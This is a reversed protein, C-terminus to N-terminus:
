ETRLADIPDVATARRAPVYSAAVAAAALCLAVAGYTLPDVPSVEFLIRSLLRSLAAASALGVVVGIGALALGHGVFMRQVHQGQAGLAMRIGIERVRQSVTYSIVGYIGVLGLLLAMGGAIALMILTFSTRAMSRQYIEDLTRINAIPVNQSVSRIAARIENSFAETGARPSRLTFLATRGYTEDRNAAHRVVIPWYIMKPAPKDLGAAREDALVGIIERWPDAKNDTIRKGLAAAPDKWNERAFNESVLVVDRREYVDTWTFSRGAILAQGITKDYGPGIFRFRGLPPVEGEKYSREELFIPDWSESNDLTVSRSVGVSEVGPLAALKDAMQQQMLLLHEVDAAETSPIPVNLTQITEPHTFGPNVHRLAQFTRIMLGSSVMLVLALAVQAVVLASRARHRERSQSLARGGGRLSAAIQPRGYKFVPILGILVGAVLAAIVSFTLATADVGIEELRPLGSPRLWVLLRLIGDALPLGLAAGLLSIVFSEALLDRAIRKWGAGLAARITLEQQRGEARVLLLNAVNACAILLVLGVAGMLVWLIKGVDGVVEEKLSRINPQIQAQKFMEVSFGPPAAYREWLIPIMRGIDASAQELTVGDKLRAIHRYSFNGLRVDNPEFRIPLLIDATQDAVRFGQPMVGIIERQEGDVIISRGIVSEQGGFRQQWYSYTLIATRPSAPSDDELTFWHGLRPAVALADLTGQTMRISDVQEPDGQGTVTSRNLQWLGSQSFTRSEDRYVFYNSPASTLEPLNIGPAKHSIHILRDADPYPLPKLLVGNVVSFIATNAGIGVAITLVTLAMFSPSRALRRLAHRLAAIM